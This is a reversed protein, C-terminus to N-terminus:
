TAPAHLQGSVKVKTCVYLLLPTIDSSGRYAKMACVPAVKGKGTHCVINFTFQNHPVKIM